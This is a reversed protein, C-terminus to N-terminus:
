GRYNMTGFSKWERRANMDWSTSTASTRHSPQGNVLPKIEGILKQFHSEIQFVIVWSIIVINTCYKTEIGQKLAVLFHTIKCAHEKAAIGCSSWKGFNYKM